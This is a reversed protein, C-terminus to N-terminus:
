SKGLRRRLAALGYALRSKVTGLPLSLVAAIAALSLDEQFHLALVARSAPTVGDISALRALLEPAPAPERAPLSSLAADGGAHQRWRRSRKLHRFAARSAIRFAWARFAEPLEMGGLKRHIQILVEQAVDDADAPGVLSRLYRRLPVLVAALLQELAQRDGSQARLVWLLEQGNSPEHPMRITFPTRSEGPPETPGPAGPWNPM